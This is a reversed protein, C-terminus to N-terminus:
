VPLQRVTPLGVAVVDIVHNLCLIGVHILPGPFSADAWTTRRLLDLYESSGYVLLSRGSVIVDNAGRQAFSENRVSYAVYTPWILEFSRSGPLLAIPRVESFISGMDPAHGGPPAVSAEDLIVALNNDRPERIERLYLYPCDDVDASISQEPM